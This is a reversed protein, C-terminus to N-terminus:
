GAEALEVLREAAAGVKWGINPVQLVVVPTLVVFRGRAVDAAVDANGWFQAVVGAAGM